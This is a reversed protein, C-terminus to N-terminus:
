VTLGKWKMWRRQLEAKAAPTSLKAFCSSNLADYVDAMSSWLVGFVRSDCYFAEAIEACVLCTSQSWFDGEYKGRAYEYKAGVAITGGCERCRNEKRAKRIDSAFFEVCGDDGGGLCVGCDSM